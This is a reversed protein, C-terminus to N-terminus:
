WIIVNEIGQKEPNTLHVRKDDRRLLGEVEDDRGSRRSTSLDAKRMAPDSEM